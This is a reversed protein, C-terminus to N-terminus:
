FNFALCDFKGQARRFIFAGLSQVKLHTSIEEFINRSHLEQNKNLRIETM